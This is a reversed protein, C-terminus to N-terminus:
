EIADRECTAVVNVCGEFFARVPTNSSDGFRRNFSFLFFFPFFFTGTRKSFPSFKEDRIRKEESRSPDRAVKRRERALYYM